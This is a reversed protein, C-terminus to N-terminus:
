GNLGQNECSTEHLFLLNKLHFLSHVPKRNVYIISDSEPLLRAAEPPAESYLFVAAALIVWM